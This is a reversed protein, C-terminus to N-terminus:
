YLPTATEWYITSENIEGPLEIVQQRMYNSARNNPVYVNLIADKQLISGRKIINQGEKHGM